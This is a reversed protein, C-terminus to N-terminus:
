KCFDVNKEFKDFNKILENLTKLANEQDGMYSECRAKTMQFYPHERTVALNNIMAENILEKARSYDLNELMIMSLLTSADVNQADIQLVNQVVGSTASKDNLLFKLKAYLMQANTFYKNKIILELIKQAKVINQPVSQQTISSGFNYFILLAINTFFLKVKLWIM